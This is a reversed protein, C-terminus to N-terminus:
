HPPPKHSIQTVETKNRYMAETILMHGNQCKPLIENSKSLRTISIHIRMRFAYALFIYFPRSMFLLFFRVTQNMMFNASISSFLELRIETAISEISNQAFM